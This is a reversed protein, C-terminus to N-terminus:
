DSLWTAREKLLWWLAPRNGPLSPLIVCAGSELPKCDLFASTDILSSALCCLCAAPQLLPESALSRPASGAQPRKSHHDQAFLEVDSRLSSDPGTSGLAAKLILHMLVAQCM